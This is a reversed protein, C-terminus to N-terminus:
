TTSGKIAAFNFVPSDSAIGGTTFFTVNFSGAAVATVLANYLNTGSKQSIHIVDTAAVTSNTVTFTAATASGAAAFLTIAGTTKNLTVGTTRSTLQTVAGGVGSGALYGVGVSGIALFSGGQIDMGATGGSIQFQMTVPGVGGQMFVNAGSVGLLFQGGSGIIQTYALSNSSTLVGLASSSTTVNLTSALTGLATINGQVAAPLTSSISPVGTGSTILVGNNATALGSVAMGGAAYYALQNITGSNVVGSGICVWAGNQRFAMAGTSSGTAPSSGPLGDTVFVRSGNAPAAPLNVLAVGVSTDFLNLAGANTYITGVNLINDGVICANSNSLLAIGTGAGGFDVINDDIIAGNAKGISIGTGTYGTYRAANGTIVLNTPPTTSANDVILFAGSGAGAASNGQIIIRDYTVSFTLFIAAATYNELSNGILFLNGEQSQNWDMHFCHIGGLFKNNIFRVDSGSNFIVGYSSPDALFTCGSFESAGFGQSVQNNIKVPNTCNFKCANVNYKGVSGLNLGIAHNTINVNDFVIGTYMNGYRATGGSAVTNLCPNALTAKTTSIIATITSLLPAGGAGASIAFIYKGIDASTFNASASNITTPNTVSSMSFDSITRFDQGVDICNGSPSGARNLYLDRFTVYSSTVNFLSSSGTANITGTSTNLFNSGVITMPKTISITGSCNYGSGPVYLCGGTSVANVAAQFAATSDVVGTPDAGFDLVSAYQRLKAQVTSAVAGTSGQTFTVDSPSATTAVKALTLEVTVGGQVAPIKETGDALAGAPLESIKPM